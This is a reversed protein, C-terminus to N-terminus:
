AVEDVAVAVVWRDNQPAGAVLDALLARGAAGLHQAPQDADEVALVRRPRDRGAVVPDDGVAIGGGEVEQSGLVHHAVVVHVAPVLATLEEGLLVPVVM